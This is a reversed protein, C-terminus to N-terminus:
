QKAGADSRYLSRSNHSLICAAVHRAHDASFADQSVLGGLVRALVRKFYVASFWFIEPINYGDSGYLVKTTPTMELLERLKPEVGIGAFPVMESVDVWVNPYSNALFGSEATYPYGAHVLVINAKRYHEDKLIRYLLLPNSQKLDIIPSDGMGTHIQLPLDHRMCVELTLLLLHDRIIKESFGDGRGLLYSEYALGVKSDPSEMIDLGTRYAIVTKLAAAQYMTIDEELAELYVDIFEPYSLRLGLIKDVIPEIRVVARIDNVPFIDPLQDYSVLLENGKLPFGLDFMICDIKADDILRAIYGKPDNHYLRNRESLIVSESEAADVDLLRALERLVMQYLVTNKMDDPRQQLMSLTWYQEYCATEELPRFAHCHDDVVALDSFDLKERSM